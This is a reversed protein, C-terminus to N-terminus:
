LVAVINITTTMAVFLEARRAEQGVFDEKSLFSIQDSTVYAM